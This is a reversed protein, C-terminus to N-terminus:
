QRNIGARTRFLQGLSLPLGALAFDKELPLEIQLSTLVVNAKRIGFVFNDEDVILRRTSDPNAPIGFM